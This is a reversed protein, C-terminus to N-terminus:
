QLKKCYFSLNIMIILLMLTSAAAAEEGKNSTLICRYLIFLASLNQLLHKLLIFDLSTVTWCWNQCMLAVPPQTANLRVQHGPLNNVSTLM